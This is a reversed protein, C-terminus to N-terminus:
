LSSPDYRSRSFMGAIFDRTLQFLLQESICILM